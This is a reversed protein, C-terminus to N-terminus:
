SHGRPRLVRISQSDLWHGMCVKSQSPAARYSYSAAIFHFRLKASRGSARGPHNALPCTGFALCVRASGVAIATSWYVPSANGTSCSDNGLLEGHAVASPVCFGVTCDIAQFEADPQRTPAASTSSGWCLVVAPRHRYCSYSLYFWLSWCDMDM